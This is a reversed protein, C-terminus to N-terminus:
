TAMIHWETTFQYPISHNASSSLRDGPTPPMLTSPHLCLILLVHLPSSLTGRASAPGSNEQYLYKIGEIKSVIEKTQDTSGDDVVIVEIDKFTQSKLALLTKSITTECNYAPIIVTVKPNTM